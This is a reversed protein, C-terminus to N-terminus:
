LGKEYKHRNNSDKLTNENMTKIHIKTFKLLIQKLKHPLSKINVTVNNGDVTSGYPLERGDDPNNDLQYIKLLIYLIEHGANDIKSINRILAKRQATTLNKDKIDKSLTDYLPFSM